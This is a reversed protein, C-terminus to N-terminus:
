SELLNFNIQYPIFFDPMDANTIYFKILVLCTLFICFIFRQNRKITKAMNPLLITDFIEFYATGRLAIEPIPMFAISMCTGWIFLQFFYNDKPNNLLTKDFFHYFIIIPVHTIMLSVFNLFEFGFRRDRYSLMQSSLYNINLVPVLYDMFQLFYRAFM